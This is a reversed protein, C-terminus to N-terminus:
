RSCGGPADLQAGAAARRSPPAAASRGRCSRSRSPSRSRRRVAALDHPRREARDAAAQAAQGPRRRALAAVVRQPDLGDVEGPVRLGDLPRQLDHLDPSAPLSRRGSPAESSGRCPCPRRRCSTPRRRWRGGSRPGRRACARGRWRGPASARRRGRAPPRRPASRPRRGPEPGLLDGRLRLQLLVPGRHLAPEPLHEDLAADLPDGGLLERHRRAPVLQERQQAELLVDLAAGPVDISRRSRASRRSAAAARRGPPRASTAPSAAHAALRLQQGRRARERAREEVQPQGVLLHHGLDLAEGRVEDRHM